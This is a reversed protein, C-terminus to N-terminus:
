SDEEMRERYQSAWKTKEVTHARGIGLSDKGINKDVVSGAAIYAGDGVECPAIITSNSGIFAGKGIKTQHKKYGDYNCTITGAGVNTRDGITADGIYTLHGSAVGTGLESNKVEVFNGIRCENGLKTGPRINAFPGIKVNDGVIAHSVRSQAVRCSAGIESDDITTMPGIVSGAGIKTRGQLVTMPEIQAEPAIEVDPDIFTTGPDIITVGNLAHRELISMRMITAAQALEWRNNVGKFITDNPFEVVAVKHGEEVIHKLIDTLLYEQQANNKDLKPLLRRLTVADFCYVASNVETAKAEEPTCDKAEVIKAFEGAQNRIIRGYNGGEPVQFSAVVAKAGSTEFKELLLQLGEANLLPTDGPTLLVPGDFEGLKTMAMQAAHGTGEQTEQMAFSYNADWLSSKLLEAGHGVVLVPKEAGLKKMARGIHEVMAIGCIPHACKPLESKM